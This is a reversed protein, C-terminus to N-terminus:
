SLRFDIPIVMQARVSEGSQKGPIWKPSNKIVRVAEKEMRETGNNKLVEVNSVTGDKEVVFQIFLRGEVKNTVDEAPYKLNEGIYKMFAANGQGKFSPQTEVVTFLEDTTAFSEQQLENPDNTTTSQKQLQKELKEDNKECSFAFTIVITLSLLFALKLVNLRKPKSTMMHIRNLTESKNFFTGINLNSSILCNLALIKQYHKMSIKGELLVRSDAIYEHNQQIAKKFLKLLPNFWFAVCLVESLLIDISHLEKLHISEHLLIVNGDGAPIAAHNNLFITKYFAFTPSKGNTNIIKHGNWTTQTYETNKFFEKLSALQYLLKYLFYAFGTLYITFIVTFVDIEVANSSSTLSSIVVESIQFQYLYSAESVNFSSLVPITVLPITVAFIQAALLFVRNFYFASENKLVFYYFLYFALLVMGSEISYIVFTEAIDNFKSEM